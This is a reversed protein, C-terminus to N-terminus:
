DKDPPKKLDDPYERDNDGGFYTNWIQKLIGQEKDESLRAAILLAIALGALSALCILGYFEVVNFDGITLAFKGNPFRGYRSLIPQNHMIQM